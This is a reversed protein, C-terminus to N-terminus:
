SNRSLMIAATFLAEKGFPLIETDKDAKKLCTFASIMDNCISTLPNEATDEKSETSHQSPLMIYAQQFAHALLLQTVESSIKKIISKTSNGNSFCNLVGGFSEDNTSGSSRRTRVSTKPIYKKLYQVILDLKLKPKDLAQFFPFLINKDYSVEDLIIEIAPTRTGDARTTWGELDAAKKSSDLEIIMLLLKQVAACTRKVVEPLALAVATYCKETIETSGSEAPRMDHSCDRSFQSLECMMSLCDKVLGKYSIKRSVLIMNLLSERLTIWDSSETFALNRPVFDGKLLYVLYQFLLMNRLPELNLIDTNAEDPVKSLGELLLHFETVDMSGSIKDHDQKESPTVDTGFTFPSWAQMVLFKLYNIATVYLKIVFYNLLCVIYVKDLELLLQYSSMILDLSKEVRLIQFIAKYMKNTPASANEPVLFVSRVAELFSLGVFLVCYVFRLARLFSILGIHTILNLRVCLHYASDDAIHQTSKSFCNTDLIAMTNEEIGGDGGRRRKTGM